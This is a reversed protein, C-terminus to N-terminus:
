STRRSVLPDRVGATTAEVEQDITLADFVGEVIVVDDNVNINNANYLVKGSSGKIMHYKRDDSEDDDVDDPPRRISIRWYEENYTWPIV